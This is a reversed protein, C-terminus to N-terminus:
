HEINSTRHEINGAHFVLQGLALVGGVGMLMGFTNPNDWPGSWRVQARYEFAHGAEGRLFVGAVLLVVLIVLVPQIADIGREASRRGSEDPTGENGECGQQRRARARRRRSWVAWVAAGNGLVAGGLLCVADASASAPGYNAAYRLTVLLVLGLLWLTPNNLRWFREATSGQSIFSFTGLYVLGCVFVMWQTSPDRFVAAVEQGFSGLLRAGLVGQTGAFLCNALLLLVCVFTIARMSGSIRIRCDVILSLPLNGGQRRNEKSARGVRRKGPSLSVGLLLVITVTGTGYRDYM